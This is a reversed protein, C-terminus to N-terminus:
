PLATGGAQVFGVRRETRLGHPTLGTLARFERLLHPEDAYGALAALQAQTGGYSQALAAARRMRAIRAYLKPGVGVREGFLRELQRESVGCAAAAAHVSIAGHARQILEAARHVRADFARSRPSGGYLLAELVAIRAAQTPAEALREALAAVQRSAVDELAVHQDLLESAPAELLLAAAGPRFRVGFVRTGPPLEVVEARTMPGAVSGKGSELDVLFDICGDPLVRHAGGQGEFLWLADVWHDLQPPAKTQVLM